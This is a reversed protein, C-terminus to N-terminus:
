LLNVESANVPGEMIFSIKYEGKTAFLGFVDRFPYTFEPTVIFSLLAGCYAPMIFLGVFRGTLTIIRSSINQPIGDCEAFQM